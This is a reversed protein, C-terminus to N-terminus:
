PRGSASSCASATSSAPQAAARLGRATSDLAGIEEPTVAVARGRELAARAESNCGSEVLGQALNNWAAAFEPALATARRWAAVADAVRGARYRSNGLAFWVLSEGPWRAAAAELGDVAIAPQGVQELDSM